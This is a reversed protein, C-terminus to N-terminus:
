KKLGKSMEKSIRKEAEEKFIEGVKGTTKDTAPKLM